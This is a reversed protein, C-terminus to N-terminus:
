PAELLRLDPYPSSVHGVGPPYRSWGMRSSYYMAVRSVYLSFQHFFASWTIVILSWPQKGWSWCIALSSTQIIFSIACIYIPNLACFTITGYDNPLHAHKGVCCQIGCMINYLFLSAKHLSNSGRSRNMEVIPLREIYPWELQDICCKSM